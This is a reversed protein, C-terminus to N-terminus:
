LHIGFNLRDLRALEEGTTDDILHISGTKQDIEEEIIQLVISNPEIEKNDDRMRLQVTGTGAEFGYSANFTRSVVRNRAHVEVRVIPPTPTFLGTSQGSVTVTMVTYIEATGPTLSWEIQGAQYGASSRASVHIVPILLEQLSLGGHFYSSNGGSVKFVGFTWPTAFELESNLGFDSVHARMFASDINGGKGIWARRHLDSTEGGPADIKMDNSIDEGFIHGHDAAIIIQTCGNSSLQRIGRRLLDLVEDMTKRALMPNDQEGSMDIEQSTILIVDANELNERVRKGPKVIQDLKVEYVNKNVVSKFYKVRSSRDKLLIDGIQLGLKGAGAPVVEGSSAHPMLAAMGIETITPVAALAPKLMIDDFEDSFGAVLEKAMEFRLADVLIYAVKQKGIHPQVYTDFIATQHDIGKIKFSLGHYSEIFRQALLAGVEMYRQRGRMILRELLGDDTGFIDFQHWRKEMHRHYTDLLYWGDEATYTELIDSANLPQKLEQEIQNAQLLLLGIDTLLAWRAQIEPVYSPWFGTQREQAFAVWDEDPRNLLIDEVFHQLMREIGDFTHVEVLHQVEYDDAVLTVGAEVEHAADAYIKQLKLSDRWEHALAVCADRSVPIEPVHINAFREPVAGLSTVFDVLLIHRQFRSRLDAVDLVTSLALGFQETLLDVLQSVGDKSELQKDLAPENLFRLAIKQYSEEDYVLMVQGISLGEGREALKDLNSLTYKGAVVDAEIASTQKEALIPLLAHRAIYALSTNREPPQQGPQLIVGYAEVEALANQTQTHALPVYILLAPPQDAQGSPADIDLLPEIEHRLAFFSDVYKVMTVDPMQLDDLADEYAREPDYWVVIGRENVQKRIVQKLHDTVIGM